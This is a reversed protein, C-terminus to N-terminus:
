PAQLSVFLGALVASMLNVLTGALVSNHLLGFLTVIGVLCMITAM